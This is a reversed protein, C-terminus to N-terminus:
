RILVEAIEGAGGTGKLVVSTPAGILGTMGTIQDGPDLAGAAKVRVVGSCAVQISHGAAGYSYLVGIAPGANATGIKLVKYGGGPGVTSTTDICVVTYLDAAVLDEGAECAILSILNGDVAM